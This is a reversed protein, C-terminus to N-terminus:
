FPDALAFLGLGGKAFLFRIHYIITTVNFVHLTEQKSRLSTLCVTSTLAPMLVREYLEIWGLRVKEASQM